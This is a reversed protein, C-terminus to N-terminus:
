RAKGLISQIMAAASVQKAILKVKWGAKQAKRATAPGIAAVKPEVPWSPVLRRFREAATGSAFIVWDAGERGLAERVPRALRQPGENRYVVLRKVRYGKKKLLGAFGGKEENGTVHLISDAKNGPWRRALAEAGPGPGIFDAQLGITKLIEATSRGVVAIKKKALKRADGVMWPM